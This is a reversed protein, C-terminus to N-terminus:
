QEDPEEPRIPYYEHDVPEAKRSIKEGVSLILDLVPSVFTIASEIRNRNQEQGPDLQEM